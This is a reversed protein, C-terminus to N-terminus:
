WRACRVVSRRIKESRDGRLEATRREANAGGGGSSEEVTEERERRREERECGAERGREGYGRGLVRERELAEEKHRERRGACNGREVKM